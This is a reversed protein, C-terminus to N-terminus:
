WSEIASRYEDLWDDDMVADVEALARVFPAAIRAALKEMTPPDEIPPAPGAMITVRLTALAAM